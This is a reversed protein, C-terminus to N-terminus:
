FSCGRTIRKSSCDRHQDRHKAQSEHQAPGPGYTLSSVMIATNTRYKITDPTLGSRSRAKPVTAAPTPPSAPSATTSFVLFELRQDVWRLRSARHSWRGKRWLRLPRRSCRSPASLTSLQIGPVMDRLDRDSRLHEGVHGAQGIGDGRQIEGDAPLACRREVDRQVVVSELTVM